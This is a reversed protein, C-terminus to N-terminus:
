EQLYKKWESSGGPFEAEVEVRTFPLDTSDIIQITQQAEGQVILCLLFVTTFFIKRM